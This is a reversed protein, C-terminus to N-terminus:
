QTGLGGGAPLEPPRRFAPPTNPEVPSYKMSNSSDCSGHFDVTIGNKQARCENVYTVGNCGCVPNSVPPCMTPKTLCEGDGDAGCNTDEPFICVEGDPCKGTSSPGCPKKSPRACAGSSAVSVGNAHAQPPSAYTKGDCGCVKDNPSSEVISPSPMEVCRAEQQSNGCASGMPDGSKIFPRYVCAEGEPCETKHPICHKLSGSVHPQPEYCGDQSYYDVSTGNAFVDRATEYTNGDCGCVKKQKNEQCYGLTPNEEVFPEPAVVCRGKQEGLDGCSTAQPNYNVNNWPSEICVEGSPCGDQGVDCQQMSSNDRSLCDALERAEHTEGCALLSATVLAAELGLIINFIRDSM